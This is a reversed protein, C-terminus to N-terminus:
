ELSYQKGGAVGRLGHSNNYETGHIKAAWVMDTLDYRTNFFYVVYEVSILIACYLLTLLFAKGIGIKMHCFMYATLLCIMVAEKAVLHSGLVQLVVFACVWELIFQIKNIWGKNRVEGFIECLMKCLLLEVFLILVESIFDFM